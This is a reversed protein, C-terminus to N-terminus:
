LRKTGIKGERILKRRENEYRRREWNISSDGYNLRKNKKQAEELAKFYNDHGKSVDIKQGLVYRVNEDLKNLWLKEREKETYLHNRYYLPLSIKFGRRTRYTENTKTDKFLNKESIPNDLYGKGIGQSCLVISKYEKHLNDSKSVYKVIYNITKESVYQGVWINGYQWTKEISKETENTFIIGHLHVRETNNQGLETVLWHRVSKGHKKRWRELFLRVAKKAIENELEYYDLPKNNKVTKYNYYNRKLGNKDIITKKIGNRIKVETCINTLSKLSEPSFTFTVFKGNRNTKIEEHLRVQWNRSKAKRCEMCNGCAIPVKKVREDSVPPIRGGNKKTAKYKPNDIL